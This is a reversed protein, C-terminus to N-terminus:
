LPSVTLRGAQMPTSGLALRGDQHAWALSVNSLYYDRFTSVCRGTEPDWIKITGYSSASALKDGYHYGTLEHGLNDCTEGINKPESHRKQMDFLTTHNSESEEIMESHKNSLDERGQNAMARQIRAPEDYTQQGRYTTAVALKEM